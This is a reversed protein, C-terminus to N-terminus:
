GLYNMIRTLGEVGYTKGVQQRAEAVIIDIEQPTLNM